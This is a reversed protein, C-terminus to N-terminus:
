PSGLGERNGTSPLVRGKNIHGHSGATQLLPALAVAHDLVMIPEMNPGELGVQGGDCSILIM